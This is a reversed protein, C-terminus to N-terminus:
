KDIEIFDNIDGIEKALDAVWFLEEPLRQPVGVAVQVTVGDNQYTRVKETGKEDGEMKSITIIREKAM